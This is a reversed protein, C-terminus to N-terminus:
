KRLPTLQQIAARLHERLEQRELDRGPDPHTQTIRREDVTHLPETDRKQKQFFISVFM